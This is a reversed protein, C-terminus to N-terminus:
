GSSHRNRYDNEKNLTKCVPCRWYHGAVVVFNVVLCIECKRKQLQIQKDINVIHRNNVYDFISVSLLFLSLIISLFLSLEVVM